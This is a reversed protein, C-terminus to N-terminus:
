CDYPRDMLPALAIKGHRFHPPRRLKDQRDLAVNVRIRWLVRKGFLGDSM